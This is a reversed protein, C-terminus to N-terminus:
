KDNAFVTTDLGLVLFPPSFFFATLLFFTLVVLAGWGAASGGAFCFVGVGGGGGGLTHLLTGTAHPTITKYSDLTGTIDLLM